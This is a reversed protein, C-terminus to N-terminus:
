TEPFRRTYNWPHLEGLAVGPASGRAGGPGGDVGHRHPTVGVCTSVSPMSATAQSAMAKGSAMRVRESDTDPDTVPKVWAMDTRSGSSFSEVTDAAVLEDVRVPPADDWRWTRRRSSPM